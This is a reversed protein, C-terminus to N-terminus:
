IEFIRKANRWLVNNLDDKDLGLVKIKDIETKMDSTPSDSGFVVRDSGVKEVAEKVFVPHCTLSTELYINPVKACPDPVDLFFDAGGMHGMIFKGEPYRQALEVIQLPLSCEPTGSHIYIWVGLRIAEEIIPFVLKENAQFGQFVPHLKLGSLHLKTISRNLEQVAKKGYWPNVSALGLFKDPYKKVIGSIYDNGDENDIVLHSGMACIIAKEVGSDDMESLLTEVPQAVYPTQGVHCHSDIIRDVGLTEALNNM